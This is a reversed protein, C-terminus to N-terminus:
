APGSEEDTTEGAPKVHEALEADLDDRADQLAANVESKAESTFEDVRAKVVRKFRSVLGTVGDDKRPSM